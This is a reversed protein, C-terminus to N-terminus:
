YRAEALHRERQKRSEEFVESAMREEEKIQKKIWLFFIGAVCIIAFGLTGVIAVPVMSVAQYFPTFM